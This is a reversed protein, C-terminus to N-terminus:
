LDDDTEELWATWRLVTGSDIGLRPYREPNALHDHRDIAKLRYREIFAKIHPAVPRYDLTILLTAVSAQINPAVAHNDLIAILQEGEHPSIGTERLMRYGLSPAYRMSEVALPRFRERPQATIVISLWGTRTSGLEVEPADRWQELLLEWEDIVAQEFWAVVKENKPWPEGEEPWAWRDHFFTPNRAIIMLAMLRRSWHDDNDVITQLSELSHGLEFGGADTLHIPLVDRDRIALRAYALVFDTLDESPYGGGWQEPPNALYHFFQSDTGFRQAYDLLVALQHGHKLGLHLYTDAVRDFFSRSFFIALDPGSSIGTIRRLALLDGLVPVAREDGTKKLESVLAWYRLPQTSWLAEPSDREMLRRMYRPHGGPLRNALHDLEGIAYSAFPLDGMQKRMEAVAKEEAHLRELDLGPGFGSALTGSTIVMTVVAIASWRLSSCMRM